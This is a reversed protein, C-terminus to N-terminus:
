EGNLGGHLKGHKFFLEHCDECLTILDGWNENGRREYTRHHVNLKTSGKNCVQCRYKSSRLHQSRRENWEPTQLYARYPMSRLEDIRKQYDEHSRNWEMSRELCEADKCERCMIHNDKRHEQVATRSNLKIDKGCKDCSVIPAREKVLTRIDYQRVGLIDAIANVKLEPCQWYLIGAISQIDVGEGKLEKVLPTVILPLADKAKQLKEELQNIIEIQSSIAEILLQM